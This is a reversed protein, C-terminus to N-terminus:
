YLSTNKINEVVEENLLSRGLNTHIVVGTANIVRRLKYSHKKLAKKEINEVLSEINSKIEKAEKGEKKKKRILDTEERISDIILKRPVEDSLETIRKDALLEDVKPILTYLNEM